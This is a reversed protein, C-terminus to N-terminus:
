VDNKSLVLVTFQKILKNFEANFNICYIYILFFPFYCKTEKHGYKEFFLYM